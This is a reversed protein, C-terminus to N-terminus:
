LRCQGTQQATQTTPAPLASNMYTQLQAQSRAVNWIRVENVHGLFQNNFPAGSSSVQAITTALDNTVITGTCPQQSLLYGNRYFKLTAGDYVMAVHYTKNLEPPCTQFTSYYGTSTSIECGNPLLAYNINTPGTHKSILHGYFLGSNLPQTRNFMAEVTLQFGAVDLDGVTAYSGQTPTALWTGCDIAVARQNTQGNATVAPIRAKGNRATRIGTHRANGERQAFSFLSTLLLFIAIRLKITQM